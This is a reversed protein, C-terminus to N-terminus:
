GKHYYDYEVTRKSLFYTEAVLEIAYETRYGSTHMANILQQIRKRRDQIRKADKEKPM